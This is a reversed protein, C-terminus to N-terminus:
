RPSIRAIFTIHSDTTPPATTVVGIFENGDNIGAKSGFVWQGVSVGVTNVEVMIKANIADLQTQLNQVDAITIPEVQELRFVPDAM